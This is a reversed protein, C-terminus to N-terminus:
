LRGVMTAGVATAATRAAAILTARLAADNLKVTAM